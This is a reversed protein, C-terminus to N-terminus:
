FLNGTGFASHLIKEILSILLELLSFISFEEKEGSDTNTDDNNTDDGPADPTTTDDPTVTEEEVLPIVVGNKVIGDVAEKAAFTNEVETLDEATLPLFINSYEQTAEGSRALSRVAPNNTNVKAGGSFKVQNLALIGAGNQVTIQVETNDATVEGICNSIDYFMETASNIAINKVTQTSNSSSVNITTAGNVARLGLMVKDGPNVKVKFTIAQNAELYFEGQPGVTEYNSFSLNVGEELTGSIFGIGNLVDNVPALNEIVNVYSANKEGDAYDSSDTGLPNYIRFGDVYTKLSTVTSGDRAAKKTAKAGTGGNLISNDDFWIVEVDESAMGEDALIKEVDISAELDASNKVLGTDILNNKIGSTRLAGANSLYYGKTEVTYEGFTDTRWNVIPVQSVLSGDESALEGKYYTDVIYSKITKGGQKIAVLQVGTNPGCASVLDFGNGTFTVSATDSRKNSKDVTTALITGNSYKNNNDYANDFGDVDGEAPLDRYTVSTGDTEATWDPNSGNTIDFTTEEYYINSAPVVNIKFWDYTGDPRHILTYGSRDASDPSASYILAKNGDQIALDGALASKNYDDPNQESLDDSVACLTGNIDTDLLQLGYDLVYTYEPVSFFEAPFRKFYENNNLATSDVYLGTEGQDNISTNHFDVGNKPMLGKVSVILKEGTKETTIYKEAYNFGTATVVSSSISSNIQTDSTTDEFTLRGIKDYYGKQVRASVSANSADFVDSLKQKIISNNNLQAMDTEADLSIQNLLNNVLVDVNFASAVVDIHYSIDKINREGPSSMNSASEFESSVYDMYANMDFGSMSNSGIQLTFVKGGANKINLAQQVATTAVSNATTSDSGGFGPVGDTIMIVCVNRDGTSLYNQKNGNADVTNQIINNAMEIGYNSFTDPDNYVVSIRDIARRLLEFDEVDYFANKYVDNSISGYKAFPSLLVNDQNQYLGTNLYGETDNSGFTVLAIRHDLGTAVSDAAIEETFPLLAQQMTELRNGTAIGFYRGKFVEYARRKDKSNRSSHYDTRNTDSSAEALIESASAYGYANPNTLFMEDTIKSASDSSPNGTCNNVVIYGNQSLKYCRGTVPHKCWLWIDRSYTGDSGQNVAVSIRAYQGDPLKYYFNSTWEKNYNGNEAISDNDGAAQKMTLPSWAGNGGDNYYGETHYINAMGDVEDMSGSADLVFIYDTPKEELMKYHTSSIAYTEIDVTYTGDSEVRANLDTYVRSKETESCPDYVRKYINFIGHAYHKDYDTEIKGGIINNGTTNLADCHVTGAVESLGSYIPASGGNRAYFKNVKDTYNSELSDNCWLFYAGSADALWFCGNGKSSQMIQLNSNEADKVMGIQNQSVYLNRYDSFYLEVNKLNYGGTTKRIKWRLNEIDDKEPSTLYLIDNKIEYETIPHCVMADYGNAGKTIKYDKLGGDADFAYLINKQTVPDKEDSEYVILYEEDAEIDDLTQVKEYYDTQVQRPREQGLLAYTDIKWIVDIPYDCNGTNTLNSLSWAYENMYKNSAGEFSMYLNDEIFCLGESMPMLDFSTSNSNSLLYADVTRTGNGTNHTITVDGPASLDIDGITLTSWDPTKGISGVVSGITEDNKGTGWSRSLYVRGKDVVAYQIDEIDTHVAICHSPYGASGVDFIRETQNNNTQYIRVDTMAFERTEGAQIADQDFRLTYAGTYTGSTNQTTPWTSDAGTPKLGATFTMKHLYRGDELQTITTQSSQKVNCHGGGNPAFMYLDSNRNTSIFEITYNVGETLNFSGFNVAYEGVYATPATINGYINVNDSNRYANWTLTSGSNENTGSAVDVNLLNRYKGRLFEWEEQSSNGALKYGYIMSNYQASNSIVTQNYNNAGTSDEYFNGAWLIGEDYCVYATAATNMEPLDVADQIVVEYFGDGDTDAPNDFYSLPAYAIQDADGNSDGDEKDSDDGSYYFNYESFALGGGHDYNNSKDKNWIEFAAEFDGTKASLAFLMSPMAGTKHYSSVIVWDKAAYYSLGQVIFDDAARLGPIVLDTPEGSGYLFDSAYQAYKTAYDSVVHEQSIGGISIASADLKLMPLAINFTTALMVVALVLSLVKKGKLKKIFKKM